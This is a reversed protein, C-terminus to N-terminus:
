HNCRSCRMHSKKNTTLLCKHTPGKTDRQVKLKNQSHSTTWTPSVTIVSSLRLSGVLSHLQGTSKSFHISRTQINCWYYYLFIASYGPACCTGFWLGWHGLKVTDQTIVARLQNSSADIYSEFVKLYDPYALLVQLTAKLHNFARKISRM